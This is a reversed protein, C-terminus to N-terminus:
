SQEAVFISARSQIIRAADHASITGQFYDTLGDMLINHLPDISFSVSSISNVFVRISDVNDQTLSRSTTRFDNWMLETSRRENMSDVLIQDFLNQNTPIGFYSNSNQLQRSQWEESLVFNIFEWAGQQNKSNATIAMGSNTNFSNGSGHEVPFGKFVFDGNFLDQFLPYLLPDDFTIEIIIQEGSSIMRYPQSLLGGTMDIEDWNIAGLTYSFELLDIFYDSNFNVEGTEWDVFSRSDVRYMSYVLAVGDYIEGLPMTAQPNANIVEKFEDITWRPNNGVVDPHGILTSIHFDPSMQYLKGNIELASLVSDIFDSRELSSDKDIFDYLDVLIGRGAWQNFPFFSTHIIDPGRGTIMELALKEFDGIPEQWNLDVEIIEVRYLSNTRNFEVVASNFIHPWVTALTIVTKEQVEGKPTKALVVLEAHNSTHGSDDHILSSTLLLVRDDPLFLINDLSVVNIGSSVWNLIQVIENTNKSIALLDSGDDFVVLYEEYGDFVGRTNIPFETTIGWTKNQIDIIQMTYRTLRSNWSVYAVSADSLKIISNPHIFNDTNLSFQTIGKTDLVFISQGSGILINENDDVYLTTIGIWTQTKSVSSDIDITWQETGTNDLKRIKYLQELPKHHQWIESEDADNIDFNHPFDFTVFNHAEAIFLEGNKNVYLAPIYIGGGEARSPPSITSYNSLISYNSLNTIDSIDLDVKVIQTTRFLSNSNIDSTSTFYLTNDLLTINSINQFIGALTSLSSFEPMFVFEPDNFDDNTANGCGVFSFTLITAILPILICSCTVKM